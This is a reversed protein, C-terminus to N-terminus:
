VRREPRSHRAEFRDINCPENDDGTNHLVGSQLQCEGLVLDSYPKFQHRCNGCIEEDKSPM